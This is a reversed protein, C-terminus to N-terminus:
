TTFYFINVSFCHIINSQDEAKLEYLKQMFKHEWFSRKKNTSKSHDDEMGNFLPNIPIKKNIFKYINM